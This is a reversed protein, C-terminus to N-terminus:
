SNHNTAKNNGPREYGYLRNKLVQSTKGAYEVKGNIVHAYLAPSGYRIAGIEEDPLYSLVARDRELVWDAVKQFGIGLIMVLSEDEENM